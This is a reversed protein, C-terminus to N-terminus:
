IKLAELFHISHDTIICHSIIFHLKSGQKQDQKTLITYQNKSILVTKVDSFEIISWVELYQQLHGYDFNATEASYSFLSQKSM